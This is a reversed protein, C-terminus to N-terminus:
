FPAVTKAKRDDVISRVLDEGVGWHAVTAECAKAYTMGQRRLGAFWERILENRRAKDERQWTGNQAFFELEHALDAGTMPVFRSPRAGKGLRLAVPKRERYDRALAAAHDRDAQRALRLKQERKPNAKM